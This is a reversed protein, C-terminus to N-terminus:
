GLVMLFLCRIPAYAQKETSYKVFVSGNEARIHARGAMSASILVAGIGSGIVTEQDNPPVNVDIVETGVIKEVLNRLDTAIQGVQIKSDAKASETSLFDFKM